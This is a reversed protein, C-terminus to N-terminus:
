EALEIRFDDASGRVAVLVDRAHRECDKANLNVDIYQGNALRRPRIYGDASRGFRPRIRGRLGSVGDPFQSGTERILLNSVEVLMDAWSAVEHRGGDLLFAAIRKPRGKRRGRAPEDRSQKGGATRPPKQQEIRDGQEDRSALEDRPGSAPALERELRDLLFQHVAEHSPRVSVETEVAETLLDHLMEGHPDAADTVLRRWVRSFAARVRRDREQSEFERQARELTLGRVSAERDLYNRLTAAQRVRIKPPSLRPQLVKTAGVERGGAAPLVVVRARRHSRCAARRRRLRLAPTTRRSQEPGYWHAEGRDLLPAAGAVQLCYDVRGGRVEFEPTVESGDWCNWGLADLVPLVATQRAAEEVRQPLTEDHAIRTIHAALDPMIRLRRQGGLRARWDPSRLWTISARRSQGWSPLRSRSRAM